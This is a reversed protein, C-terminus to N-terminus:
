RNDHLCALATVGASNAWILLVVYQHTVPLDAQKLKNEALEVNQKLSFMNLNKTDHSSGCSRSDM